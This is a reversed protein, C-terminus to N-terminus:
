DMSLVQLGLRFRGDDEPDCRTVRARANLSEFQANPSAIVVRVETGEAVAANLHLSMGTASLDSCTGTLGKAQGEPYVDVTTNMSMRIFDRKESYERDATSM